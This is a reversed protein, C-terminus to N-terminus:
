DVQSSSSPVLLLYCCTAAHCATSPSRTLATNPLFVILGEVNEANEGINM